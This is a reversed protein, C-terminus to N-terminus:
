ATKANVCLEPYVGMKGAGAFRLGGTYPYPGTSGGAKFVAELGDELMSKVEAGTVDLRFLMNGFPLVQIVQTLARVLSTPIQKTSCLKQVAKRVM